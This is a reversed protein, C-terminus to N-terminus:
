RRTAAPVMSSFIRWSFAFFRSSTALTSESSAPPAFFSVFTDDATAVATVYAGANGQAHEADPYLFIGIGKLAVTLIGVQGITAIFAFALPIGGFNTNVGFSGELCITSTEAM